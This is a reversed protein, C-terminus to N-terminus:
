RRGGGRCALREADDTIMEWDSDEVTGDLDPMLLIRIARSVTDPPLNPSNGAMAIPAYTSMDNMEWGGGKVPVLVPRTAGYRYGSNLIALVDEVGPKDSRLSRDIEDLLITRIRTELIRPILAPSPVSAAQIPKLCLRQLHDLVTTKGSGFIVSDVQL